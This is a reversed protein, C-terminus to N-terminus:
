QAAVVSKDALVASISDIRQKQDDTLTIINKEMYETLQVLNSKSNNADGLGDRLSTLLTKFTKQDGTSRLDGEMTNLLATINDYVAKAKPDLEVEFDLFNVTFDKSVLKLDAQSYYIRGIVGDYRPQYKQL